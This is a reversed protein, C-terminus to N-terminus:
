AGGDVSAPASLGLWWDVSGAVEFVPSRFPSGLVDPLTFGRRAAHAGLLDRAVAEAQELEEVTLPTTRAKVSLRAFTVAAEVLREKEALRATVSGGHDRCHQEGPDAGWGAPRHCPQGNTRPRGCRSGMSKDDEPSGKSPPVATRTVGAPPKGNGLAGEILIVLHRRYCKPRCGDRDLDRKRARAQDITPYLIVDHCGCDAAAYPGDGTVTGHAWLCHGLDLWSTHREACPHWRYIKM